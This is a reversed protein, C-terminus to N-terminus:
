GNAVCVRLVCLLVSLTLGRESRGTSGLAHNLARARATACRWVASTGGVVFVEGPCALEERERARM